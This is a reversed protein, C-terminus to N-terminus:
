FGSSVTVYAGFGGGLLYTPASGAVENGTTARLTHSNSTIGDAQSLYNGGGLNVLNLMLKPTKLPGTDRLRYGVTLDSVVYHPISEDNVLTSYQKDVYRVDFNGFIRRNDYRLAITGVLKPSDVANKGTTSFTNGGSEFNNGLFADLYQGTVYPSFHHWPRLGFEFSAGRNTQGGVTTPETILLNTGPLYFHSTVQHNTLNVNFLSATFNFFGYHRFGLEEGISYEPKLNGPQVTARSSSPDFIQTYAEVSQPARFATTGNIFVQDNPDIRYTIAVQPLPEFYDKTNNYPDAGPILNTGTRSVMAVKFGGSLDLKNNLLSLTDAAFIVNVQQKFNLNYATLLQHTEPIVIGFAGYQNAPVGFQNLPVFDNEETHWSYSYWYGATFTNNQHEWALSTNIAGVKDNFPDVAQTPVEGNVAGPVNLTSYSQTGVFGNNEPVNEGYIGPGFQHIYYPTVHLTLEDSLRFTLPAIINEGNIESVNLKYYNVNGPYYSPSFNYSKGFEKYQALTPETYDNFKSDTFGFVLSASNGEGWDKIFKADVHYRSEGGPGRWNDESMHSFSVLGRLGTNGIDGTELRIFEKNTNYAGGLLDIYGGPKYSPTLMNVKIEGGVANFLPADLDSSSQSVSVSSINEPDVTLVSYPQYTIPNAVPAGEFLYGIQTQNFGRLSINDSIVGSPDQSAVTVGAVDQLYSSVDGVAPQKALYDRTVTTISRPATQRVLLGAGAVTNTVGDSTGAHGHVTVTEPASSSTGLVSSQLGKSPSKEQQSTQKSKTSDGPTASTPDIPAAIASYHLALSCFSTTAYLLAGRAFCPM